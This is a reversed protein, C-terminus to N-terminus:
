VRYEIWVSYAMRIRPDERVEAAPGEVFKCGLEMVVATDSIQLAGHVNQEVVIVTVGSINIESVTEFVQRLNGPSLGLSPEDLLLFQPEAM